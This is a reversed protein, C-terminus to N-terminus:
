QVGTVATRLLMQRGGDTGVLAHLRNSVEKANVHFAQTQKTTLGAHAVEPPFYNNRHGGLGCFAISWTKIYPWSPPMQQKQNQM